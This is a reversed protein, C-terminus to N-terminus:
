SVPPVQTSKLKVCLPLSLSWSILKSPSCTQLLQPFWIPFNCLSCVIVRFGMVRCLGGFRLVSLGRWDGHKENKDSVLASPKLWKNLYQQKSTQWSVHGSFVFWQWKSFGGWALFLASEATIPDWGRHFRKKQLVSICMAAVLPMLWVSASM